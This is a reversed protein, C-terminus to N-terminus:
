LRKIVSPDLQLILSIGGHSRQNSGCEGFPNNFRGLAGADIRLLQSIVANGIDFIIREPGSRLPSRLGSPVDIM